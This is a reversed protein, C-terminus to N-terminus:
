VAMCTSSYNMETPHFNLSFQIMAEM